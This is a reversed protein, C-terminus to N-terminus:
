RIIPSILSGQGRLDQRNRELRGGPGTVFRTRWGSRSIAGSSLFLRLGNRCVEVVHSTAMGAKVVWFSGRLGIINTSRTPSDHVLWLKTDLKPLHAGIKLHQGNPRISQPLFRRYCRWSRRSGRCSRLSSPGTTAASMGISLFIETCRTM